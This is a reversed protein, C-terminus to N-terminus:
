TSRSRSRTCGYPYLGPTQHIFLMGHGRALSDRFMMGKQMDLDTMEVEARISEGGPLTVKRTGILDPGGETQPGGSCGAGVGALLIVPVFYRM